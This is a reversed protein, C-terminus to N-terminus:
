KPKVFKLVFRDSTGRRGAAALPSDNWDRADQPNRLFFGEEALKFGAHEIEARVVSEEIRHLTQVEGSGSHTRGSHDIVAYVGGPKLAAFVAANMKERDVNQWVTDHYVLVAFVADLNKVDPPLPDDLERDVRAINKNSPKSLREAWPAAAFKELVFENNVGYVKGTKGVARALLEATYGGGALLEAVKMGPKVGFFTLLEGPHRGADLARDADSRDKAELMAEVSKPVAIPQRAPATAPDVPSISPATAAPEPQEDAASLGPEPPTLDLAAATPQSNAEAAPPPPVSACAALAFIGVSSLRQWSPRRAM